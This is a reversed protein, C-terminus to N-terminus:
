REDGGVNVLPRVLRVDRCNMSKSNYVHYPKSVGSYSLVMVGCSCLCVVACVCLRVFVCGWFCVLGLLCM